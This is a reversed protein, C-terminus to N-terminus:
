FFFCLFFFSFNFFVFAVPALSLELKWSLLSLISYLGTVDFGHTLEHGVVFGIAGFNEASFFFILSFVSIGRVNKFPEQKTRNIM